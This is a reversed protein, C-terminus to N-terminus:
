KFYDAIERAVSDVSGDANVVIDSAASYKERREDYLRKANEKNKFLPRTSADGVRKCIVDFSADLFVIRSSKKIAEVNRQFTMAGGGTSIVANKMEAAEVCIEHELERFYEEGKEDFIQSIKKSIADKTKKLAGFFKSFIGM